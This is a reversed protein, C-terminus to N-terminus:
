ICVGCVYVSCIECWVVCVDYVMRLSARTVCACLVCVCACVRVCEPGEWSHRFLICIESFSCSSRPSNVAWHLLPAEWEPACTVAGGVWSDSVGECPGEGNERRCGWGGRLTAPKEGESSGPGGMVLSQSSGLVWPLGPLTM